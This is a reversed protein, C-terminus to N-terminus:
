YVINARRLDRGSCNAWSTETSEWLEALTAKWAAARQPSVIYDFTLDDPNELQTEEYSALVAEDGESMRRNSEEGSTSSNNDGSPSEMEVDGAESVAVSRNSGMLEESVDRAPSSRDTESGGEEETVWEEEGEGGEEDEEEEEDEEDEEEENINKEDWGAEDDDGEDSKEEDDGADDDGGRGAMPGGAETSSHKRLYNFRHRFKDHLGDWEGRTAVRYKRLEEPIDNLRTGPHRYPFKVGFEAIVNDLFAKMAPVKEGKRMVKQNRNFAM